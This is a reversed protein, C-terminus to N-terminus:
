ELNGGDSEYHEIMDPALLEQRNILNGIQEEYEESLKEQGRKALQDELMPVHPFIEKFNPKATFDTKGRTIAGFTGASLALADYLAYM